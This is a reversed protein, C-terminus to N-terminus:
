VIHSETSPGRRPTSRRQLEPTWERPERLDKVLEDADTSETAEYGGSDIFLVETKSLPSASWTDGLSDAAGFLRRHVDYASMLFSRSLQDIVVSLLPSVESRPPDGVALVFGKSSFSPVLLPTQVQRGDAIRLIRMSRGNGMPRVKSGQSDRNPRETAGTRMVPIILICARPGNSTPSLVGDHDCGRPPGQLASTDKDLRKKERNISLVIHTTSWVRVTM